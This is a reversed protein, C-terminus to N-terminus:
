TAPTEDTRAFAKEGFADLKARDAISVVSKEIRLFGDKQLADLAESAETPQITLMDAVENELSTRNFTGDQGGGFDTHSLLSVLAAVRADRNSGKSIDIKDDADRLRQVLIVAIKQFWDPLGEVIKRFEDAGIILAETEELAMVSASRPGGDIASVEGVVAGPGAEDLDVEVGDDTKYVRARGRKVIYLDKSVDGQRFIFAGAPFLVTKRGSEGPM